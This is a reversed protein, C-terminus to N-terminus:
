IQCALELAIDFYKYEHNVKNKDRTDWKPADLLDGNTLFYYLDLNRFDCVAQLSACEMEVSICGERKRQNFNNITERYFADTTWTKGEIYPINNKQLLRSVVKYNKITIYDSPEIYHYSTGEDRYAETSVMIKERKIIEKDLCGASGFVVINNTDVIESLDELWGVAAPSGMYTKYFTFTKNNYEFKYVPINGTVFTLEGIKDCKIQNLVYEEIKNSFTIICANCKLRNEKYEPNIIAIKEKDFSNIIM